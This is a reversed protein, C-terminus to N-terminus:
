HVALLSTCFRVQHTLVKKGVVVRAAVSGDLSDECVGLHSHVSNNCKCALIGERPLSSGSSNVCSVCALTPDSSTTSGDLIQGHATVVRMPIQTDSGASGVASMTVVSINRATGSTNTVEGSGIFQEVQQGSSTYFSDGRHVPSSPEHSYFYGQLYWVQFLGPACDCSSDPQATAGEPCM